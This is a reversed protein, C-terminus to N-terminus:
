ERPDNEKVVQGNRLGKAGVSKLLEEYDREEKEPDGVIKRKRAESYREKYDGKQILDKELAKMQQDLLYNTQHILCLLCNAATEPQSM